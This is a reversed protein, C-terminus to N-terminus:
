NAVSDEVKPKPLIMAIVLWLGYGIICGLVIGIAIRALSLVIPIHFHCLTNVISTQGMAGVMLAIATWGALGGKQKGYRALMGIGVILIPHGLMFEKTRPRVYLLSDLLSRFHLETGSAGVGTDNGTRAIMLAFVAALFLSLASMGWTIPSKLNGKWDTLTQFFLFGVILLPFFVALKVGLFEDAVVYFRLSNLLGAVTLGGVVSIASTLLFGVVPQKPRLADLVIFAAVPFVVAALLADLKAGMHNWAALGLLVLLVGGAMQLKRNSILSRLVFYATGAIGLGILPLTAKPLNPERYPKAAGLECGSKVVGQAIEKLLDGFAALPKDASYSIPRVLLYRMGRERAAKVYREVVDAPSMKDLEAVQASHLRVVLEPAQEVVNADGGIKGFEPTAYYMGLSRLTEITVDLSDRRGLVQDGLPLLSEAGLEKAWELTGRVGTSSLGVPNACRAIIGLGASKITSTVDPDLGISTNRIMQGSYSGLQLQTGSVVPAKGFRISLGKSVRSIEGIDNFNLARLLVGKRGRGSTTASATVLSARGEAILQGITDESVVVSRLGQSKLSQLADSVSIGQADALAEINEYEASISVSRNAGEVQYRKNISFLSLLTTAVLVPWLWKPLTRQM